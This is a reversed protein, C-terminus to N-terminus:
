PCAGDRACSQMAVTPFPNLCWPKKASRLVAECELDDFRAWVAIEVSAGGFCRYACSCSLTGLLTRTLETSWVSQCVRCSNPSEFIILVSLGPLIEPKRFHNDLSSFRYICIQHQKLKNQVWFVLQFGFEMLLGFIRVHRSM